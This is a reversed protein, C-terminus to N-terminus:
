EGSKNAKKSAKEIDTKLKVNEEQLTSFKNQTIELNTECLLLKAQLENILNKQRQIFTNIFETDM